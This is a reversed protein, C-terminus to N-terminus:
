KLIYIKYDIIFIYTAISLYLFFILNNLTKTMCPDFIRIDM